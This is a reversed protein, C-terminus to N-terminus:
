ATVNAGRRARKMRTCAVAGMMHGSQCLPAPLRENMKASSAFVTFTSPQPAPTVLTRGRSSVVSASKSAAMATHRALANRIARSVTRAM